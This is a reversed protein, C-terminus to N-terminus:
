SKTDRKPQSVLKALGQWIVKWGYRTAHINQKM